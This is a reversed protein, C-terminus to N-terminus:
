YSDFQLPVNFQRCGPYLRACDDRVSHAKDYDKHEDAEFERGKPLTFVVRLMEQLFTGQGSAKAAECLKYLVCQRGDGGLATILPALKEYLGVRSHRHFEISDPDFNDKKLYERKLQREHMKMRDIKLKLKEKYSIKDAISRKAFAPNIITRRKYPVKAILKGKDDLYYVNSDVRRQATKDYEKLMLLLKPDTPLNWALAATNGYLFIDGIPILASTQVCFVLQLSSGEPFVLFRKSRSLTRGRPENVSSNTTGNCLENSNLSKSNKGGIWWLIVLYCLIIICCLKLLVKFVM